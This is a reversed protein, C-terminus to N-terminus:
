RRQARVVVLPHTQPGAPPQAPPTAACAGEGSPCNACRPTADSAAVGRVRRLVLTVAALAALTVLADQLWETPM